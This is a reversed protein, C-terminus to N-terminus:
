VNRVPNTMQQQMQAFANANMMDAPGQVFRKIYEQMNTEAITLRERLYANESEKLDIMSKMDQIKKEDVYGKLFRTAEVEQGRFNLFCFYVTWAPDSSLPKIMELPYEAHTTMDEELVDLGIAYRKALEETPIVRLKWIDNGLPDKGPLMSVIEAMYGDGFLVWAWRPTLAIDKREIM